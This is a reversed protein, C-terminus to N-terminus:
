PRLLTGNNHVVEISINKYKELFELIVNNCSDCCPRETFLRIKGSISTNDGLKEAINNLIKYETDMDRFLMTGDNTPVSTAKFIPNTPKLMIDSVNSAASRTDAIVDIGSHAYLENKIGQIEVKAIGFNGGRKLDSPLLGRIEKVRSLLAVDAVEDLLRVSKRTLAEAAGNSAKISEVIKEVKGGNKVQNAIQPLHEMISEAIGDTAVIILIEGVIRGIAVGIVGDIPHSVFEFM